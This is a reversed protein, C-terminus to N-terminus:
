RRAGFGSIYRNDISCPYSAGSLVDLTITKSSNTPLTYNINANGQLGGAFSYGNLWFAEYLVVGNSVLRVKFPGYDTTYCFGFALILSTTELSSLVPIVLSQVTTWTGQTVNINSSTYSNMPVTVANGAIKLTSVNADVIDAEVVKLKNVSARDIDANTVVLKNVSARDIQANGIAANDIFTTANGATVKNLTAFAGQNKISAADILADAYDQSVNQPASTVIDIAWGSEWQSRAFNLFGAIFDKVMVKPYGWSSTPEGIYICCKGLTSDYGFRVRNDAATSGILNAETNYWASNPENNYGALHLSFSKDQSYTYVNVTFKVM